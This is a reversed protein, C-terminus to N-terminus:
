KSPERLLRSAPNRRAAMGQGHAINGQASLDHTNARSGVGDRMQIRLVELEQDSLSALAKPTPEKHFVEVFVDYADQLAVQKAGADQMMVSAFQEGWVTLSDRYDQEKM